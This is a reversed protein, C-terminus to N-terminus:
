VAWLWGSLGSTVIVGAARLSGAKLGILEAISFPEGSSLTTCLLFVSVRKFFRVCVCLTSASGTHTHTFLLNLTRMLCLSESRSDFAHGPIVFAAAAAAKPADNGHCYRQQHAPTAAGPDPRAVASQISIKQQSAEKERGKLFSNGHNNPNFQATISQNGRSWSFRM